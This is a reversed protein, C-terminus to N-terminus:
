KLNLFPMAGGTYTPLQGNWKAIAERGMEIERLKILESSLENKQLKLSEAEAKASEIKQIAEVKIRDLDRQAKLYNQEATVKAEIAQNFTPSFDFHTISLDDVIIGYNQLRTDSHEKILDRVIQRKTILEEATFNATSAKVAEQLLPTILKLGLTELDGINQFIHAVKEPNIHYNLTIEGKVQQLDRSSSEAQVAHKEIRISIKNVTDAIPWKLHIGEDLVRDNVKGFTTVVGRHGSPITTWTGWLLIIGAITIFPTGMISKLNFQYEM